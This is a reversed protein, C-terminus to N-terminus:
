SYPGHDTRMKHNLKGFNTLLLDNPSRSVTGFMNRWRTVESSHVEQPDNTRPPCLTSSSTHTWAWGTGAGEGDSYSSHLCLSVRPRHASEPVGEKM